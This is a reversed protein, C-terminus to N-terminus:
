RNYCCQLVTVAANENENLVPYGYERKIGNMRKIIGWIKGIETERVISNRFKRWYDKWANKITKRVNGQLRKFESLNQFNHTRKVVFHKM